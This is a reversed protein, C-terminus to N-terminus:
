AKDDAVGEARKNLLDRLFKELMNELLQGEELIERAPRGAIQSISQLLVGAKVSAPIVSGLPNSFKVQDRKGVLDVLSEVTVNLGDALLTLTRLGPNRKAHIIAHMTNPSMGCRACADNASMGLEKLRNVVFIGLVNPDKSNKKM